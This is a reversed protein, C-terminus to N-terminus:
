KDAYLGVHNGESDALVCFYGRNEALIKTRPIIIEGGNQEVRASTEAIDECNFHLLVGRDSPLFNDASSIAGAYQETGEETFFAMKETECEMVPLQIGFIAEYFKVARGFDSAPIEFFSILKKM